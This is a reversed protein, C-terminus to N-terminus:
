FPYRGPAVFCCPFPIRSGWRRRLGGRPSGESRWTGRHQDGGGEGSGPGRRWAGRWTGTSGAVSISVTDMRRPSRWLHPALPAPMRAHARPSPVTAVRDRSSPQTATAIKTQWRAQLGRRPHLAAGGRAWTGKKGKGDGERWPVLGVVAHADGVGGQGRGRLQPVAVEGVPPPEEDARRRAPHACTPLPNHSRPEGKRGPFGPKRGAPMRRPTKPASRRLWAGARHPSRGPQRSCAGHRYVGM